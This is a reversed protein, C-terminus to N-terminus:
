QCLKPVCTKCIEAFQFPHRVWGKARSAKAAEDRTVGSFFEVKTCRVCNVELTYKSVAQAIANKATLLDAPHPAPDLEIELPDECNAEKMARAIRADIYEPSTIPLAPKFPVLQGNEGITPLQKIEAQQGLEAIYVDLPKAEFRLHPKLSEYLDRRLEPECVNLLERLHDHDQVLSGLQACLGAGDELQGLGM